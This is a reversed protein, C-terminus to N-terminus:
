AARLLLAEVVNNHIYSEAAFIDDNVSTLQLLLFARRASERERGGGGGGGGEGRANNLKIFLEVGEQVALYRLRVVAGQPKPARWIKRQVQVVGHVCM